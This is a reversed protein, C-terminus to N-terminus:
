IDRHLVFDHTRWLCTTCENTRTISVNNIRTGNVFFNLSDAIVEGKQIHWVVIHAEPIMDRSLAISFTKQRSFMQFEGGTVINGSSTVLFFVTEVFSNTTVSFVM